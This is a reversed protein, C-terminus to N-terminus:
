LGGPEETWPPEWSSYQLPNGNGEGPPRASGCILDMAGASCTFEESDSGGLFGWWVCLLHEVCVLEWGRERLFLRTIKDLTFPFEHFFSSM